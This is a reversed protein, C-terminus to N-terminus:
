TARYFVVRADDIIQSLQDFDRINATLLTAGERLAVFLLLCDNLLRYRDREDAHFLRAVTGALLGASVWDDATPSHIRHAPTKRLIETLYASRSETKEHDPDLRGLSVAIEALCVSAHLHPGGSALTALVGSPANGQAVHIYVTTDFMVPGVLPHDGIFSLAKDPRQALRQTRKHPKIRRILADISSRM